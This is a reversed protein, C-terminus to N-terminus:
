AMSLIVEADQQRDTPKTLYILWIDAVSMCYKVSIVIDTFNYKDGADGM